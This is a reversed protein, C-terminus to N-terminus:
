ASQKNLQSVAVSSPRLLRQLQEVTRQTAGRHALILARANKGLAAAYQPDELCRRVFQRLEDFNHVVVAADAKLLHAVIDRFNWTNPGFCVAAGYGAPELMNQGGRSGFSGGVLAIHATGWWAALEGVSDVLIIPKSLSPDSIGNEGRKLSISESLGMLPLTRRSEEDESEVLQSRRQWPLGSRELMGAVEAFREPHRPVVILRLQPFKEALEQYVRLALIEEEKQTSGALFVIEDDKLQALRRFRQTAHNNRDFEAGDFKLSGTVVVRSPPVGLEVFRQATTADQAAVLAIRRLVGSFFWRIRRYGQFSRDSLRANVVAVGAGCETAARILNPWLELETLVLLEPRIRRMARRVAWSFDLPCFFALLNGYKKRIVDMGSQTTTSLVVDYQPFRRRVEALLPGLLNVEGVSVAHFWLCPKDQNRHPVLGFLKEAWGQRYKQRQLLIRTIWIPSTALLIFLYVADMLWFM